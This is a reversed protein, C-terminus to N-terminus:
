WFQLNNGAINMEAVTQTPTGKEFLRGIIDVLTM